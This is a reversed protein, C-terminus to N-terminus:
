RRMSIRWIRAAHNPDPKDPNASARKNEILALTARCAQYTASFAPGSEEHSLTDETLFGCGDPCLWSRYLALALLEGRDLETFLSERNM